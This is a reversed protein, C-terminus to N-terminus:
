ARKICIEHRTENCTLIASDPQPYKEVDGLFSLSLMTIINGGAVKLSQLSPYHMNRTPRKSINVVRTLVVADPIEM